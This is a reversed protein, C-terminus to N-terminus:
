SYEGYEIHSLVQSVWHRGESTDFLSLPTQNSLAPVESSLWEKALEKSEWVSSAKNLVRVTDLVDESAEKGLRKRSYQKSLNSSSVKLIVIFVDRLGTTTIIKKLDAGPLGKRVERIFAQHNSFIEKPLFDVFLEAKREDHKYRILAGNDLEHKAIAELLKIEKTMENQFDLEETLTMSTVRKSIDTKPASSENRSMREKRVFKGTKRPVKKLM